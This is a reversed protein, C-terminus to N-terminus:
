SSVTTDPIPPTTVDVPMDISDTGSIVTDLTQSVTTGSQDTNQAKDIADALPSGDIYNDPAVSHIEDSTVAGSLAVLSDVALNSQTVTKVDSIVAFFKDSYEKTEVPYQISFVWGGLIM